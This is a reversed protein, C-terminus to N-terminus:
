ENNDNSNDGNNDFSLLYKLRNLEAVIDDIISVIDGNYSKVNNALISDTIFLNIYFNLEKIITKEDVYDSLIINNDDFLKLRKNHKGQYTEVYDDVLESLANYATDLEKHISHKTTQWHWIKIQSLLTLLYKLM